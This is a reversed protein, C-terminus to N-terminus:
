QNPNGRYHRRYTGALFVPVVATVPVTRFKAPIIGTDADSLIQSEMRLAPAPVVKLFNSNYPANSLCNIIKRCSMM